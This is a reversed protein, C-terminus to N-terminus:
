IVRFFLMISIFFSFFSIIWFSSVIKIESCNNLEYHHHIPAMLFIRKKFFRFCFVQLLVSFFEIIFLFGIVFFYFEKHLLIFMASLLSGISLSGTDGLFIKAPYFNFSFFALCSGFMISSIICLDKAYYIYPINLISTLYINSSFLSIIFLFLFVLLLPLTVLGDLGDTFNISNIGIILLFYWIICYFYSELYINLFSIKEYNIYNNKFFLFFIYLFIFLNQLFFKQLISLGDNNQFYIKLLDDLFGIFFNFVFFLILMLINLDFLNIFIFSFFLFNILIIIGGMIPIKINKKSIFNKRVVGYIRYKNCFFLFYKILLFSVIFSFFLSLIVKILFFNFLFM